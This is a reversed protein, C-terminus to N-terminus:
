HCHGAEVSLLITLLWYVMTISSVTTSVWSCTFQTASVKHHPPCPLPTDLGSNWLYNSVEWRYFRKHGPDIIAYSKIVQNVTTILVFDYWLRRLVESIKMKWGSINIDQLADKDRPQSKFPAKTVEIQDQSCVSAASVHWTVWMTIQNNVTIHSM